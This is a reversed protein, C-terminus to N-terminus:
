LSIAVPPPKITHKAVIWAAFLLASAFVYGLASLSIANGLGYLVSLYGIVVPATTGGLLWGSSNMVGTSIGRTDPPLVDFLSAFVNADYLGKCFGWGFLAYLTLSLSSSMGCLMVFPIGCVAGTIQITIRGGPIANRRDALWGGLLAGLGAGCQATITALLAAKGLSLSFRQYLFAPIWSLQVIAVFNMTGFGLMLLIASPRGRLIELFARYDPKQNLIQGEAPPERLLLLLVVGLLMGLAGFLIFAMRWGYREAIMGAVLGGAITGVYISTQHIGFARSRTRGPHYAALTSMSAPFYISEGLGEAARFLLLSGFSRSLATAACILSWVELGALIAVKRRMHDVLYGAIPGSLAYVWAFSSGIFGLQVPSLHLDRELLPFVSYVAQRDAYNFFCVWWLMAVVHWRYGDQKGEHDIVHDHALTEIVLWSGVIFSSDLIELNTSIKHYFYFYVTDVSQTM